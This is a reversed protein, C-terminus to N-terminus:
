FPWAGRWVRDAGQTLTKREYSSLSGFTTLAGDFEVILDAPLTALPLTPPPCCGHHELFDRDDHRRQAEGIRRELIAGMADPPCPDIALDLTRM